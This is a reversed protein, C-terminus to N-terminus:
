SARMRLIYMYFYMYFFPTCETHPRNCQKWACAWATGLSCRAHLGVKLKIFASSAQGGGGGATGINASPGPLVTTGQAATGQAAAANSAAPLAELIADSEDLYELARCAHRVIAVSM